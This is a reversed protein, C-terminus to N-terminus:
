LSPHPSGPQLTARYLQEVAEIERDLEEPRWRTTDIPPHVEVRVTAPRMLWAGRPLAAGSNCLVIPVLPVRAALAIRFAGKKFRGIM